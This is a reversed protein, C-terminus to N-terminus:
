EGELERTLWAMALRLDRAVTNVHVDLVAAIEAQTMGGFYHLEVVRARREDRRALETLATDLAILEGPREGAVVSEDFVAPREGGGRKDSTRKRAHDVLIRRMHQAAAAFFHVRDNWAVDAGALRLFAESVLETPTLTLGPRESRAYAAAIRRLEAHLMPGLQDLAAADGAQWARLLATV